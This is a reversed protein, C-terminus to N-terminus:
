GSGCHTEQETYGSAQRSTSTDLIGIGAPLTKVSGRSGNTCVLFFTSSAYLERKEIHLRVKKTEYLIRKKSAQLIRTKVNSRVKSMTIPRQFQRAM